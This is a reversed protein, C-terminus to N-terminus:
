NMKKNIILLQNENDITITGFKQMVNQGILMPAEISNSISVEINSIEFNGLVLKRLLFRKSKATSGDAFQYTQSPLWDNEGITGTRILTLAVDPSISVESAGSDFIFNIKLVDNLLIPIEYLGSKNKILRISNSKNETETNAKSISTVKEFPDAEITIGYDEPKSLIISCIHHLANRINQINGIDTTNLAISNRYYQSTQAPITKKEVLVGKNNYSEQLISGNMKPYINIANDFSKDKSPIFSENLDIRNIAILYVISESLVNNGQDVVNQIYVNKTIKMEGKSSLSFSYYSVYNLWQNPFERFKKNLYDITQNVTLDQSNITLNHFTM